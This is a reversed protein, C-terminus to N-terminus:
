GKGLWGYTGLLPKVIRPAAHYQHTAAIMAVYVVEPLLNYVCVPPVTFTFSSTPYNEDVTDMHDSIMFVDKNMDGISKQTDLKIDINELTYYNYAWLLTQMKLTLILKLGMLRDYFMTVAQETLEKEGNYKDRLKKINSVDRECTSQELHARILEQAAKVAQAQALALLKGNMAHERLAERYESAGGIKENVAFEMQKDSKESRELFVSRVPDGAFVEGIAVACGIVAKFIRSWAMAEYEEIGKKFAARKEELTDKDAKFQDMSYQVIKTANNYKGLAGETLISHMEISNEAKDQMTQWASLQQELSVTRDQFREYEREFDSAATIGLGLTSMYPQIDLVPAHSASQGTLGQACIQQCINAAQLHIDSDESNNRTALEIWSAVSASMSPNTWFLVEAIRLQTHLHARLESVAFVSDPVELHTRDPLNNFSDLKTLPVETADYYGSDDITPSPSIQYCLDVGTGDKVFDNLTIRRVTPQDAPGAYWWLSVRQDLASTNFVVHRQAYGDSILLDLPFSCTIVRAFIFLAGENLIGPREDCAKGYPKETTEWDAPKLYIGRTAYRYCTVLEGYWHSGDASFNSQGPIGALSRAYDRWESPSHPQPM